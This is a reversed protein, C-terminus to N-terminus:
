CDDLCMPRMPRSTRSAGPQVTNDLLAQTRPASETSRVALNRVEEAVVAFGAGAAGPLRIALSEGAGERQRLSTALIGSSWRPRARGLYDRVALGIVIIALATSLDRALRCAVRSKISLGM